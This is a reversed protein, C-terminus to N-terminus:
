GGGQREQLKAAVRERVDANATMTEVIQNFEDVNLGSKEVAAIMDSEAKAKVGDAQAPDKATQLDSAAKEQITQVAVYADAFKEIKEDTINASAATNSEPTAPTAPEMSSPESPPLQSETAPSPYEQAPPAPEQVQAWAAPAAAASAAFLASYILNSRLSM